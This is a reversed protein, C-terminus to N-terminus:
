NTSCLCYPELGVLASAGAITVGYFVTPKALLVHDVTNNALVTGTALIVDAWELVEATKDASEVTVDLHTHEINEPDLDTVRVPFSEKLATVLASDFHSLLPRCVVTCRVAPIRCM